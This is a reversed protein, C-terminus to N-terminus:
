VFMRQLMARKMTQYQKLKQKESEINRDLEQFYKGIKTQEELSPYQILFTQITPLRLSDVTAKVTYTLAHKKFHERMFSLVFLGNVNKFNSIKYVRQHYDFRGNIYHFIEGM